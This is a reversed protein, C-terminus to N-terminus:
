GGYRGERRRKEALDSIRSDEVCQFGAEVVQRHLGDAHPCRPGHHNSRTICTSLHVVACEVPLNERKQLNRKLNLLKRLVPQGPCGGCSLALYRLPLDRPYRTFGGTRATFAHECLFGPCTHRTVAHCQVVVIYRISSLDEDM